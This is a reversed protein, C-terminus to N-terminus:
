ARYYYERERETYFLLIDFGGVNLRHVADMFSRREERERLLIHDGKPSPQPNGM